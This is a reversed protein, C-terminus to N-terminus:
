IKLEIDDRIRNIHDSEAGDFYGDVFMHAVLRNIKFTKQKNDKSLVIRLYGHNDKSPSLIKEKSANSNGNGLSKVNGRNSVKYLRRYDYITGNEIFYINKWIEM